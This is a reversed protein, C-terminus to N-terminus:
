SRAGASPQGKVFQSQCIRAASQYQPAHTDVGSLNYGIGGNSTSPDPFDSVGHARMCRSFDLANAQRGQQQQATGPGGGPRLHRCANQAPQVASQSVGNRGMQVPPFQGQSDPDPFSPVGHSRM